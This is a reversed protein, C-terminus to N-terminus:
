IRLNDMPLPLFALNKDEIFCTEAESRNIFLHILFRLAEQVQVPPLLIKNIETVHHRKGDNLLNLIQDKAEKLNADSTLDQQHEICVDCHGCDQSTEEGFYLLLQRSRCVHEGKAYQLFAEIRNVYQEKRTEYTEEERDQLYTIYPTKSRPIFHIVKRHSLNKLIMYVQQRDLGAQQAVLSEDIYVYEAFIGTYLRM